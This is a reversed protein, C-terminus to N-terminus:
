EGFLHGFSVRRRPDVDALITEFTGKRYDAVKISLRQRQRALPSRYPSFNVESGATPLGWYVAKGDATLAIVPGFQGPLRPRQVTKSEVGVLCSTYGGTGFGSVAVTKGDASVTAFWGVCLLSSEGSSVNLVFIAPLEDWQKDGYLKFQDFAPVRKLQDRPVFKTYALRDGDPFWAMQEDIAVIGRDISESAAVDWIELHGQTVLAGPKQVNSTRSVFAVRQRSPSLALHDGIEGNGIASSAWAASGPRSFIATDQMGDILITKLLHKRDSEPVAFHDEIYAIIGHEDPGAVTHVHSYQDVDKPVPERVVTLARSPLQILHIGGRPQDLLLSGELAAVLGKTEPGPM